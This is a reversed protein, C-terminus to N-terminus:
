KEIICCNKEAIFVVVYKYDTFKTTTFKLRM